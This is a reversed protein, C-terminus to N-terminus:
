VEREKSREVHQIPVDDALALLVMGVHLPQLEQPLDVTLRGLVLCQVQDGVFM